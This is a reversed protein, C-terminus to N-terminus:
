PFRSLSACALVPGSFFVFDSNEVDRTFTSVKMWCGAPLM